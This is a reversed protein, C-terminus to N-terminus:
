ILKLISIYGTVGINTNSTEISVGSINASTLPDFTTYYIGSITTSQEGADTLTKITLSGTSNVLIKSIPILKSIPLTIIGDSAMFDSFEYEIKKDIDFSESSLLDTMQSNGKVALIIQSQAM